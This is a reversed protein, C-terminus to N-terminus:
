SEKSFRSIRASSGLFCLVLIKNYLFTLFHKFFLLCRLLICSGDQLYEQSALDLVIYYDFYYNLISGISYFLFGYHYLYILLFLFSKEVAFYWSKFTSHIISVSIVMVTALEILCTSDIFALSSPYFNVSSCFLPIIETYSELFCNIEFIFITIKHYLFRASVLIVLHGRNGDGSILCTLIIHGRIYHVLFLM